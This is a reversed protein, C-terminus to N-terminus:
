QRLIFFPRFWRYRKCADATSHMRLPLAWRRYSNPTLTLMAVVWRLWKMQPPIAKAPFRSSPCGNVRASSGTRCRVPRDISSPNTSRPSRPMALSRSGATSSTGASAVPWQALSRDGSTPHGDPASRAGPSPPPDSSPVATRHRDGGAASGGDEATKQDSSNQAQTAVNAVNQPTWFVQSRCSSAFHRGGLRATGWRQRERGGSVSKEPDVLERWSRTQRAPIRSQDRNSSVKPASYQGSRPPGPFGM